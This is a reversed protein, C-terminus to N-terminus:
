EKEDIKKWYKIKHDSSLNLGDWVQGTYWGIFTLGGETKLHCLDYELPTYQDSLAWRNDDYKVDRYSWHIPSKGSTKISGVSIPKTM